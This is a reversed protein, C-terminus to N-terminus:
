KLGVVSFIIGLNAVRGLLEPLILFGDSDNMRIQISVESLSNRIASFEICELNNVIINIDGAPDSEPDVEYFNVAYGSPSDIEAYEFERVGKWIFKRLEKIIDVTGYFALVTDAEFKDSM